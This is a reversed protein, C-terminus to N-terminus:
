EDVSENEEIQPPVTKMLVYHVAASLGFGVFWAYSFLIKTGVVVVNDSKDLDSGFVPSFWNIGEVIWWSWAFFCGLLTAVVARWNWGAAYTYVGKTRYLDGLHL